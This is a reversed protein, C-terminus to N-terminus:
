AQKKGHSLKEIIKGLEVDQFSPDIHSNEKYYKADVQEHYGRATGELRLLLLQMVRYYPPIMVPAPSANFIVIPLNGEYGPNAYMSMPLIMGIRAFSSRPLLIGCCDMPIRVKEITSAYLYQGPHLVFGKTLDVEEYIDDLADDELLNILKTSTQIKASEGISLDLSAGQINYANLGTAVDSAIKQLESSALVM